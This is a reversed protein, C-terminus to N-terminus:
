GSKKFTKEATALTTISTCTINITKFFDRLPRGPGVEYITDAQSALAKMNDGWLVSHNLQSVLNNILDEYLGSHFGGRFNSTVTISKDHDIGQGIMRLIDEFPEVITSMFRSHFPASVNLPIFRFPRDKALAEQLRAEAKPMAGAEGSIVIQNASNINAIDIPLDKLALCV